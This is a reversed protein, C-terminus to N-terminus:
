VEWWMLLEMIPYFPFNDCLNSESSQPTVFYFLIPHTMLDCMTVGFFKFYFTGVRKEQLQNLLVTLFQLLPLLVLFLVEFLMSEFFSRNCPLHFLDLWHSGLLLYSTTNLM